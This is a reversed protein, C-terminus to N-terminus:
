SNRHEGANQGGSLGNLPLLSIEKLGLQKVAAEIERRFENSGGAFAGVTLKRRQKDLRQRQSQILKDLRISAKPKVGLEGVSRAFRELAWQDELKAGLRNLHWRRTRGAESLAPRILELHNVSHHVWRGARLLRKVSARTQEGDASDTKKSETRKSETEKPESLIRDLKRNLELGKGFARLMGHEILDVENIQRLLGYERWRASEEQFLRSLRDRNSELTSGESLYPLLDAILKQSKPDARELLRQAARIKASNHACLRIVARLDAQARKFQLKGVSWQLMQWLSLLREATLLLTKEDSCQLDTKHEGVKLLSRSLSQLAYSVIYDAFQM